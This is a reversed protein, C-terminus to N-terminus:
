FSRDIKLKDMPFRKLYPSSFLSWTGFDDIALSVGIDHLVQLAAVTEEVYDMFTSETIELELWSPKIQFEGMLKGVAEVLDTRKFQAALLNVVIPVPWALDAVKPDTRLIKKFGM